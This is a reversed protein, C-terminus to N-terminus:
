LGNSTMEIEHYNAKGSYLDEKAILAFRSGNITDQDPYDPDTKANYDFVVLFSDLTEARLELPYDKYKSKLDSTEITGNDLHIYYRNTDTRIGDVSDWSSCALVDDFVYDLNNNETKALVSTKGTKLDIKEIKGSGEAAAYLYRDKLLVNHIKDNQISYVEEEEETEMDFLTYVTRADNVAEAYIDDDLKEEPTLEKEFKLRTLVLKGDLGGLITGREEMSCVDEKTWRDPNVRVLTRAESSITTTQSDIHQSSLKKEIFYLSNGDSLVTDELTMGKEFSFVKRRKTGDPEMQYLAAPASALVGDAVHGSGDAMYDITTTGDDDFDHSFLYLHDKYYFLSNGTLHEEENIYSPCEETDHSCGPRNCLYIEKRSEYDIYMIHSGEENIYYYGHEAACDNNISDATLLSLNKGKEPASGVQGADGAADKSGCGTLCSVTVLACLAFILKKKM